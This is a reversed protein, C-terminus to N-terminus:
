WRTTAFRATSSRRPRRTWCPRPSPRGCKAASAERIKSFGGMARKVVANATQSADERDDWHKLRVFGAELPHIGEIRISGIFWNLVFLVKGVSNGTAAARRLSTAYADRKGSEIM